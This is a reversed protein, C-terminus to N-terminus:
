DERGPYPVDGYDDDAWDRWKKAWREYRQANALMSGAQARLSQAKREHAKAREFAEAQTLREAM